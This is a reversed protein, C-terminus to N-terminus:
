KVSMLFSRSQERSPAVAAATRHLSAIGRLKMLMIASIQISFWPLFDCWVCAFSGKKYRTTDLLLIIVM